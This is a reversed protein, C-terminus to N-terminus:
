KLVTVHGRHHQAYTIMQLLAELKKRVADDLDGELMETIMAQLIIVHGDGKGSVYIIDFFSDVRAVMDETEAPPLDGYACV